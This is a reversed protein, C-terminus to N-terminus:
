NEGGPTPSGQRVTPYRIGLQDLYTDYKTSDYYFERMHPRYEEMAKRNLWIAPQDEPKLFSKYKVEKTQINTFYDWARTVLEPQLLLDVITLAQVKAGAIVGKHAIPTAMSVGNAWSHGPGGPINSPYRLTVTPVNWSVDGIDDSGGGRPGINQGEGDGADENQPQPPRLEQIKSALGKEPVRLEHQLAKALTQDAESWQPLGVTRINEYVAEAIPRNFHGPWASGLLRSTFTAGTMLAAGKAM